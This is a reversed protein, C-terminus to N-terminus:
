KKGTERKAEWDRSQKQGDRDIEVKGKISDGSLKGQYVATMKNGNFERVVKFSVDAGSIKGDEIATENTQGGRGPSEVKGTLKSGDAKIKLTSKRDPGGNRGPVSWTWTGNVDSPAPDAALAPTVSFAAAIALLAVPLARTLFSRLTTKM